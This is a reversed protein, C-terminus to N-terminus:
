GAHKHKNTELLKNVYVCMCLVIVCHDQEKTHYLGFVRLVCRVCGWDMDEDGEGVSPGM